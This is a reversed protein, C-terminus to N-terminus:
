PQRKYMTRGIVLMDHNADIGQILHLSEWQVKEVGGGGLTTGIEYSGIRGRLIFLPEADNDVTVGGIHLPADVHQKDVFAPKMDYWSPSDTFKLLQCAAIVGSSSGLRDTTNSESIWTGALRTPFAAKSGGSRQPEAVITCALIVALLYTNLM